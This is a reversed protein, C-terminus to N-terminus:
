RQFTKKIKELIKKHHNTNEDETRQLKVLWGIDDQEKRRQTLFVYENLVNLQKQTKTHLDINIKRQKELTHFIHLRRNLITGLLRQLRPPFQSIDLTFAGTMMQRIAKKLIVKELKLLQAIIIKREKLSLSRGDKQLVLYLEQYKQILNTV